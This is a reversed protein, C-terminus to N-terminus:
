EVKEEFKKLNEWNEKAFKILEKRHELWARYSDVRILKKENKNVMEVLIYPMSGDNNNVWKLFKAKM